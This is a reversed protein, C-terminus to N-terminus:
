ELDLGQESARPEVGLDRILEPLQLQDKARGAGTKL